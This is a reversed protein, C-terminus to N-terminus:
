SREPLSVVGTEVRGCKPDLNRHRLAGIRRQLLFRRNPVGEARSGRGVAPAM